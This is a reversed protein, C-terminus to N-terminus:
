LREPLQFRAWVGLIRTVAIPRDRYILIRVQSRPKPSYNFSIM